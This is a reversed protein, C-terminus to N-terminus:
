FVCAAFTTFIVPVNFWELGGSLVILVFVIVAVGLSITWFDPLGETSAVFTFLVLASVCRERAVKAAERFLRQM